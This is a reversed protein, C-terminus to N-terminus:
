PGLTEQSPPSVIEGWNAALYRYSFPETAEFLSIPNQLRQGQNRAIPRVQIDVDCCLSNLFDTYPTGLPFKLNLGAYYDADNGFVDKDRENTATVFAEISAGNQFQNTLSLSGGWDGALYKGGSAKVTMYTDPIEYFLNIYGTTEGDENTDMAFGSLGNRKQVYWLEGGFSLTKGFPRYLIEGGYGAFMEELYGGILSLHLEPTLSQLNALYGTDLNVANFTYNDIDSRVPNKSPLRTSNLTDLNDTLNLRLGAGALFGFPLNQQLSSITSNRSLIGEAEESLSVIQELKMHIDPWSLEFPQRSSEKLVEKNHWLETSSAQGKEQLSFLSDAIIIERGQLGFFRSRLKRTKEQKEFRPKPHLKDSYEFNKPNQFLRIRGIFKNGGILGGSLEVWPFPTYQAGISWPSPADYGLILVEEAQNRDANYDATLVFNKLPTHYAVGGYFGIDKGTFWDNARNIENAAFDREEEFHDSILGLPNSVHGASGLRGWALGATVDFDYFNKSFSIYESAQRVHGVANNLGLAIQPIFRNEDALKFKLDVGPTLSDFSDRYSSGEYTQHVRVFIDEGFQHGVSLRVYPDLAELKFSLSDAQIFRATPITTLDSVQANDAFAMGESLTLICAAFAGCINKTKIYAM